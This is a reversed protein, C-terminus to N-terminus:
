LKKKKIEKKRVEEKGGEEKGEGERPLSVETEKPFFFPLLELSVESSSLFIQM